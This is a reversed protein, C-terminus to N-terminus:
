KARVGAYTGRYCLGLVAGDGGETEPIRLPELLGGNRSLLSVSSSISARLEFGWHRTIRWQGRCADASSRLASPHAQNRHQLAKPLRPVASFPWPCGQM